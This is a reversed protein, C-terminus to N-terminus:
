QVVVTRAFVTAVSFPYLAKSYDGAPGGPFGLRSTIGFVYQHGRVLLNGAIQLKPEVVHYVRVPALSTGTIEYLTVVYDDATYGPEPVFKLQMIDSSAAVPVEDTPGSLSTLGLTVNTALPASLPLGNPEFKNSISQLTSTLALGNVTRTWAVRASVVRELGLEASLDTVVLISDNRSSELFPMILPREVYTPAVGPLFGPLSTNPSVGYMMFQAETGTAGLVTKLRGLHNNSTVPPVCDPTPVPVCNTTSLTRESAPTVWAPEPSPASMMGPQLDIKTLAYSRLSTQQTSRSQFEGLLVWDGKSPQPAGAPGTLPKGDKAYQFTVSSGTKVFQNGDNSFTFVGSTYLAPAVLPTGSALGAPTITYGSGSPVPAADLRTTRPVVLYAGTLAWQVEHPVSEGPLTYVIRHPSERLAYPIEFSGDQTNYEANDLMADDGVQILPPQPRAMESGIPKYVLESDIEPPAPMGDTTAVAWVLKTRSGPPLVPADVEITQDLGYLWNCGTAVLLPALAHWRM